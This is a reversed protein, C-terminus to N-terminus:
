KRTPATSLHRKEELSLNASTMVFYSGTAWWCNKLWDLFGATPGGTWWVWEMRM